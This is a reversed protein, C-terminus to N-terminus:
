SCTRTITCHVKGSSPHTPPKKGAHVSATQVKRASGNRSTSKILPSPGIKRVKSSPASTPTTVGPARRFLHMCIFMILIYLHTYSASVRTTNQICGRHKAWLIGLTSLVICTCNLICGTVTCLYIYMYTICHLQFNQDRHCCSVFM